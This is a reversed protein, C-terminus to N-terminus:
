QVPASYVEGRDAGAPQSLGPGRRRGCYVVRWARWYPGAPTPTSCTSGCIPSLVALRCTTVNPVQLTAIAYHTVDDSCETPGYANLLPISLYSGLWQRCLGPPLAEGTSILWRLASLDPRGSGRRVVEELMVRLLSPVTELISVKAQQVQELLQWADHAVEDPFIHVRGGVLLPALSSGSRSTLVSPRPRPSSIWDETLKLDAIKAYMNISCGRQEVMAGKPVGTSGSTYIVYALHSPTCRLPLNEPPQESQLLAEITLM